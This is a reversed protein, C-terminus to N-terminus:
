DRFQRCCFISNSFLFICERRRRSEVLMLRVTLRHNFLDLLYFGFVDDLLRFNNCFSGFFYFLLFLGRFLLRFTNLKFTEATDIIAHCIIFRILLFSRNNLINFVSHLFFLLLLLLLLYFSHFFLWFVLS